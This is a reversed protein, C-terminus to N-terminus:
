CADPCETLLFERWAKAAGKRREGRQEAVGDERGADYGAMHARRIAPRLEEWAREREAAARLNAVVGEMDWGMGFAIVVNEAADLLTQPETPNQETM